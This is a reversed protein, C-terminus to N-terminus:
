RRPTVGRGPWRTACRPSTSSRRVGTLDQMLVRTPMFAVSAGPAPGPWAALARVDEDSVDRSGARRLLNELLVKM